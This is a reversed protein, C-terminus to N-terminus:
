TLCTKIKNLDAHEQAHPDGALPTETHKLDSLNESPDTIAMSHAKNRHTIPRAAKAQTLMNRLTTIALSRHKQTTLGMRAWRKSFVLVMPTQIVAMERTRRAPMIAMAPGLCVTVQRKLGTVLVM